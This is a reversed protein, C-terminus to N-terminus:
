EHRWVRSLGELANPDVDQHWFGYIYARTGQAKMRGAWEVVKDVRYRQSKTGGHSMEAIISGTDTNAIADRPVSSGMSNPHYAFAWYGAPKSTPRSHENWVLRFNSCERRMKKEMYYGPEAQLEGVPQLLIGEPGNAKIIDVVTDLQAHTPPTGDHGWKAIHGNGNYASVFLWIKSQRCREALRKYPVRKSETDWNRGTSGSEATWGCFEIQCAGVGAEVMKDIADDIDVKGNLMFNVLGHGTHFADPDCYNKYGKQLGILSKLRGL